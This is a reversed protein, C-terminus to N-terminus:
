LSTGILCDQFQSYGSAESAILSFYGICLEEFEITM